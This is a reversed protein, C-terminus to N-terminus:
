RKKYYEVVMEKYFKMKCFLHRSKRVEIRICGHHGAKQKVLHKTEKYVTKLFQEPGAELRKQWWAELNEHAYPKHAYLRFYIDDSSVQTYNRLWSLMTLVLDVDTNILSWMSDTKSGEAWYLAIGAHFLPDNRSTQFSTKAEELWVRERELRRNRLESAAKIRGHSINSDTRDKLVTKEDKTLPLDKLWLSLSSKAVPVQKLIEKYSLGKRRLEVAKEKEQVLKKM